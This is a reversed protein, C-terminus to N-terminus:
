EGATFTLRTTSDIKRRRQIDVSNDFWGDAIPFFGDEPESGAAATTPSYCCWQLNVSAASADMFDAGAQRLASLTTPNVLGTGTVSTASLMGLYVRNRRRRQPQGSVKAAQFSMVVSAQPVLAGSSSLSGLVNERIYIPARPEADELDYVKIEYNGTAADDSIWSAFGAYFDALMDCANDAESALGQFHYTNVVDDASDNLSEFKWQCRLVTM